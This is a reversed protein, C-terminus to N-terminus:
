ESQEGDGSGDEDWPDGDEYPDPVDYDEEPEPAKQHKPRYIKFYWGAGGGILVVALGLLLPAAGGKKEPQPEPEPTPEPDPEPEPAPTIAGQDALEALAALDAVTVANLFYVNETGKQRDIVLYFVAEDATTITFFEKGEQDTANDLVTGQGDPTLPNPEPTPEAPDLGDRTPVFEAISREAASGGFDARKTAGGKGVFDDSKAPAGTEVGGTGDEYEEGGGAYAPTAFGCMLVAACLAAALVRFKKM